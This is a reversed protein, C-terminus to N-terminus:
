KKARKQNEKNTLYLFFIGIGLIILGALVNTLIQFIGFIMILISLVMGISLNKNLMFRLKVNNCKVTLM